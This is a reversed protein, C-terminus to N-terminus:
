LKNEIIRSLNDVANAVKINTVAQEQTAATAHELHNSVLKYYTYGGAMLAAILFLVIVILGSTKLLEKDGIIKLIAKIM